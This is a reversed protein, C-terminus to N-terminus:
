SVDRGFTLNKEHMFRLEPGPLWTGEPSAGVEEAIAYPARGLKCNGVVVSPRRKLGVDGRSNAKLRGRLQPFFCIRVKLQLQGNSLHRQQIMASGTKAAKRVAVEAKTQWRYSRPQRGSSPCARSLQKIAIRATHQGAHLVRNSLAPDNEGFPESPPMVEAEENGAEQEVRGLPLDHDKAVLEGVM